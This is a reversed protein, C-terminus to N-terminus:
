TLFYRAKLLVGKVAAAAAYNQTIPIDYLSWLENGDNCRRDEVLRAPESPNMTVTFQRMEDTIGQAQAKLYAEKRSWGVFFAKKQTTVPLGTLEDFEDFSFFTHALDLVNFNEQVREVDVGVCANASIAFLIFDRSHALNFHLPKAHKAPNLYPKGTATEIIHLSTPCVSMYRSLINRLEIHAMISRRRDGIKKFRNAKRMEGSSLVKNATYENLQTTQLDLLWFHVEDM